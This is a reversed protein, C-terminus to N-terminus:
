IGNSPANRQERFVTIRRKDGKLYRVTIQRGGGSLPEPGPLGHEPHDAWVAGPGYPISSQRLPFPHRRRAAGRGAGPKFPSSVPLMCWIPLPVASRRSLSGTCSPESIGGPPGAPPSRLIPFVLGRFPSTSASTEARSATTRRRSVVKQSRVPTGDLPRPTSGSEMCVM